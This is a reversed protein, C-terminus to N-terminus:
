LLNNYSIKWKFNEQSVTRRLTFHFTFQLGKLERSAGSILLATLTILLSIYEKYYLMKKTKGYIKRFLTKKFLSILVM